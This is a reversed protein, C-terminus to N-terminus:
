NKVQHISLTMGNLTIENQYLYDTVLSANRLTIQSSSKTFQKTWDQTNHEQLTLHSFSADGHLLSSDQVLGQIKVPKSSSIQLEIEQGTPLKLDKTIKLGYVTLHDIKNRGLPSASSHGTEGLKPYFTYGTGVLKDFSVTFNGMGTLPLAYAKGSMGFFGIILGLFLVGSVLAGWFKKKRQRRVKEWEDSVAKVKLM